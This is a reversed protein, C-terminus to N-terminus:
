RELVPGTGNSPGTLAPAPADPLESARSAARARERAWEAGGYIRTPTEPALMGTETDQFGILRLEYDEPNKHPETREDSVIEQFIRIAAADRNVAIIPGTVAEAVVDFFQYLKTKSMHREQPKKTTSTAQTIRM